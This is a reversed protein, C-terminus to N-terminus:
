RRRGGGGSGGGGGFRDGFDSLDIEGQVVKVVLFGLAGCFAVGIMDFFGGFVWALGLFLGVFLGITAASVQM